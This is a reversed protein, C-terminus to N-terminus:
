FIYKLASAFGGISYWSPNPKTAM